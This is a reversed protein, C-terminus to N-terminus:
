VMLSLLIKVMDALSLITDVPLNPSYTPNPSTTSSPIMGSFFNQPSVFGGYKIQSPNVQYNMPGSMSIGADSLEIFRDGTAAIHLRGKSGTIGTNSDKSYVPKWTSFADANSSDIGNILGSLSFAENKENGSYVKKLDSSLSVIGFELNPPSYLFNCRFSEDKMREKFSAVNGYTDIFTKESIDFPFWKNSLDRDLEKKDFSIKVQLGTKFTEDYSEEGRINTIVGYLRVQVSPNRNFAKQRGHFPGSLSTNRSWSEQQTM